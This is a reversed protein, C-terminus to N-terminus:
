DADMALRFGIGNGSEREDIKRRYRVNSEFDSGHWYGGRVIRTDVTDSPRAGGQPNTQSEPRYPGYWDSVWEYVNGSMDYLGLENPRKRGVPQTYTTNAVSITYRTWAVDLLNDSGAYSYGHSQNGGRAAFEWEAETPLRFRRGTLQNLQSIFEQVDDYGVREMPNDDYPTTMGGGSMVAKWEKKTVEYKGIYYSSLTVEHAPNTRSPDPDGDFAGGMIFTGGQVRVMNSIINNVIQRCEAETIRRPRSTPAGHGGSGKRPKSVPPKRTTASSTTTRHRVVAKQAAAPATFLLLTALVAMARYTKMMIM